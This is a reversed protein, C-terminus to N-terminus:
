IMRRYKLNPQRKMISNFANKGNKKEPYLDKDSVHHLFM